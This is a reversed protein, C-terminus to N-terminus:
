VSSKTSIVAIMGKPESTAGLTSPWDWSGDCRGVYHQRKLYALDEEWDAIALSYDYPHSRKQTICYAIAYAVRRLRACSNEAGMNSFGVLSASVDASLLRELVRIRGPRMLGSRGVKYGFSSLLKEGDRKSAVTADRTLRKIETSPWKFYELHLQIGEANQEAFFQLAKLVKRLAEFDVERYRENASAYNDVGNEVHKIRGPNHKIYEQLEKASGCKALAVLEKSFIVFENDVRRTGSSRAGSRVAKRRTAKPEPHRGAGTVLVLQPSPRGNKKTSGAKRTRNSTSTSGRSHQVKREKNSSVQETWDTKRQSGASSRHHQLLGAYYMWGGSRRVEKQIDEPFDAIAEVIQDNSLGQHVLSRLQAGYM